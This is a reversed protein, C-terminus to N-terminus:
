IFLWVNEKETDVNKFFFKPNNHTLDQFDKIFHSQDYFLNDCSLETLNKAKNKEMISRRFRHIKRYESPSKGVNKQFIKSLYQRSIQYKNALETIKADAEIDQILEEALSVDKERFKSLWYLELTEIQKQRNTINFIKEMEPKFDTYPDFEIKRTHDKSYFFDVNEIFSNLGLPKFYITIENILKLYSIEIPTNYRYIINSVINNEQSPTIIMMGDRHTLAINQAIAIIVYNNPFTRYILPDSTSDEVIFYFGEIYKQLLTNKPKYFELNM